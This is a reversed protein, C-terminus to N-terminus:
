ERREGVAERAAVDVPQAAGQGLARGGDAFLKTMFRQGESIREIEIAMADVNQELRTFREVLAHPIQAAATGARKWLRRAYAISIPALVFITFVIPIAFVEDPPGTRPPEPTEVIAGPIGATEAVRADAKAIEQDITLIRQDIQQIRAELGARNAGSVMPDQLENSLQQRQEELEERTRRLERRQNVAAEYVESPGSGGGLRIVRGDPQQIVVGPPAPPAPVTTQQM